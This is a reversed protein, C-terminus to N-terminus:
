DLIKPSFIKLIMVDIGPTPRHLSKCQGQGRPRRRRQQRRHRQQGDLVLPKAIKQDTVWHAEGGGQGEGKRIIRKTDVV